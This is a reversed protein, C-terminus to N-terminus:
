VVSKRDEPEAEVTECWARQFMLGASAKIKWNGGWQPHGLLRVREVFPLGKLKALYGPDRKLGIVNDYIRGPIFTVSLPRPQEPHDEPLNPNSFQAIIEERSSAWHIEDGDRHMWRLVGSREWLPYGYRPNRQGDELTEVQDIWWGVFDALWSEPDPNCTARVYPLVKGSPDRNRSLMYFFQSRTFHELQDFKVVPIQAGDWSYKDDEHELHAFKAVAGSPFIMELPGSLARAGFPGYVRQAEDWLGGPNRVQNTTRRFTTSRFDRDGVHRLDDLLLAFTKASFASGGYIAIDAESSLFLEQPGPQARVQIEERKALAASM